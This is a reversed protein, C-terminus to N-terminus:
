HKLTRKLREIEKELKMINEQNDVYELIGNCKPCRFNNESAEGFPIKSFDNKCSFFVHNMEFELQKSLEELIRQKRASVIESARDLDLEWTYIYWGIEKDKTRIYRALRYDYLKYLIKRVTNIKLATEEAIEEDTAKKGMLVRVVDLGEEGVLELILQKIEPNALITKGNDM